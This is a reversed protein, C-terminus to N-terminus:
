RAEKPTLERERRDFAEAVKKVSEPRAKRNLERWEVFLPQKSLSVLEALSPCAEIHAILGAAGDDPADPLVEGTEADFTRPPAPQAQVARELEDLKSVRERSATAAPAAAAPQDTIDAAEGDVYREDVVRDVARSLRDDGDRDTSSPLKKYLRRIATKRWMETAFPGGWPGKSWQKNVNRAAEVQKATLVERQKEGSRLTAVAYCAIPQANDALDLNREHEIRPEDGLIVAFHEGKYVIEAHLSLIEGSNRALKMLGATMPQWTAAEAGLLSNWRRVLVGERGDPLLGDAAAKQCELFLTRQDTQLLKPDKQVALMCVREFREYSIHSPLAARIQAEVRKFNKQFSQAEVNMIENM